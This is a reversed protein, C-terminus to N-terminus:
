QLNVTSGNSDPYVQDPYMIGSRDRAESRRNLHDHPSTQHEPHLEQRQQQHLGTMANNGSIYDPSGGQYSNPRLDTSYPPSVRREESPRFDVEGSSRADVSPGSTTCSSESPRSVEDSHHTDNPDGRLPPFQAAFSRRGKKVKGGSRQPPSSSISSQAKWGKKHEDIGSSKNKTKLKDGYRSSCGCDSSLDPVSTSGLPAKISSCTQSNDSSQSTSGFISETSSTMGPRIDPQWTRACSEAGAATSRPRSGGSSDSEQASDRKGLITTEGNSFTFTTNVWRATRCYKRECAVRTGPYPPDLHPTRTTTSAGSRTPSGNHKMFRRKIRRSGDREEIVDCKRVATTNNSVTFTANRLRATRTYKRPSAVVMGSVRPDLHLTRTPTPIVPRTTDSFLDSSPPARPKRARLEPRRSCESAPPVDRKKHTSTSKSITFTTNRLRASRFYKLPCAVLMGPGRPDLQLARIATLAGPRTKGSCFRTAPRPASSARLKRLRLTLKGPSDRKRINTPTEKLVTFTVNLLVNEIPSAMQMAPDLHPFGNPTSTRPRAADSLLRTTPRPSPLGKHKRIDQKLCGSADREQPINRKRVVKSTDKSCIYTTNKLPADCAAEAAVQSLKCDLILPVVALSPSPNAAVCVTAASLPTTTVGSPLHNSLMPSSTSSGHKDGKSILIGGSRLFITLTVFMEKAWLFAQIVVVALALIYALPSFAVWPLPRLDLLCYRTKQKRTPPHLPICSKEALQTAGGNQEAESTHADSKYSELISFSSITTFSAAAAAAADSPPRAEASSPLHENLMTTSLNGRKELVSTASIACSGTDAQEQHLQNDCPSNLHPDSNM